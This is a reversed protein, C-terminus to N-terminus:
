EEIGWFKFDAAWLIAEWLTIKNGLGDHKVHRWLYWAGHWIILLRRIYRM